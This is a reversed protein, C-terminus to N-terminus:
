FVRIPSIKTLWSFGFGIVISGVGSHYGPQGARALDLTLLVIFM